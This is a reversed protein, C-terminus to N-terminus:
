LEVLPMSSPMLSPKTTLFSVPIFGLLGGGFIALVGSLLVLLVNGFSFAGKQKLVALGVGPCVLIAAVSGFKFGAEVGADFVIGLIAGGILLCTCFLVLYAIYFGFAQSASRKIQLNFLNKFMDYNSLM